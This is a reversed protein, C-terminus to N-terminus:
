GDFVKFEYKTEDITESGSKEFALGTPSAKENVAHPDHRQNARYGNLKAKQADTLKEMNGEFIAQFRQIHGDIGKQTKLKGISKFESRYEEEMLDDVKGEFADSM